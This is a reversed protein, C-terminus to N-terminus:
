PGPSADPRPGVERILGALQTATLKGAVDTGELLADALERKDKHLSLIQQEVTGEAILRYVTVPKTQGIRHARDSAQDEVAPNWWPDLHVVYDAATLTLGTGGAKLSILFVDGGDGEQFREVRKQRETVPVQGDLYSFMVKEADLAKKVMALHQTFQSFVLVKHGSERLQGILEVLRELKSTPGKWKPDILRPHCAALRLRTLAALVDFRKSESTVDGLEAIASLRVDDYLAREEDTLPVLLEIDTRPPLEKAVADKTRRLIFPRIITALHKTTEKSGRGFRSEFSEQSGLLLPMVGRFLSWLEGIHNEIPTGSLAVRFGAELQHAAKARQTNANKMAQAEDFVVTAFEADAFRSAERAFMTWSVVTVSGKPVQSLSRDTEDFLRVELRPAHRAAETKWTHLVSSPAVVLAPGEVSRATLLALTQLTKGLGMDDALVAGSCWQSLRSLWEFGEVQYPRLETKLATPVPFSQEKVDALREMLRRWETAAKFSKVQTELEAILPLAGITLQPAKGDSGMLALPALTDLLSQSLTAYDNDGLKVFRRRNRAAELLTALLVRRDDVEVSGEIGFWDKQRTVALSLADVTAEPSFRPQPAKWEVDIGSRQLAELTSLAADGPELHWTFEDNPETLGLSQAFLVAAHREAEFDRRTFTRKAGDFTAALSAGAGPTFLAGGSLPECRLSLALGRAGPAVRAVLTTSPPVETGKLSEPLELELRQELNPLSRALRAAVDKPMAGGWTALTTLLDLTDRSHEVFIIHSPFRHMSLVGTRTKFVFSPRELRFGGAQVSLDFGDSSEEIVVRAAVLLAPAPEDEGDWRLTAAAPLAKLADGFDAEDNQSSFRHRTSLLLEAMRREPGLPLGELHLEKLRQGQRSIGKKGTPHFRAEITRESVTFWISGERAITPAAPPRELVELLREWGPTLLDDLSETVEPNEPLGFALMELAAMQHSCLERGCSCTLSVADSWTRPDMRVNFRQGSGRPQIGIALGEKATVRSHPWHSALGLPFAHKQSLRAERALRRVADVRPFPVEGEVPDPLRRRDSAMEEFRTLRRALEPHSAALAERVTLRDASSSGDGLQGLTWQDFDPIGLAKIRAELRTRDPTAQVEGRRVPLQVVNNEQKEVWARFVRLASQYQSEPWHDSDDADGLFDLVSPAAAKAFDFLEDHTTPELNLEPLVERLPRRAWVTGRAREALEAFTLPAQQQRIANALAWRQILQFLEVESVGNLHSASSLFGRLSMSGARQMQRLLGPFAHQDDVEAVVRSLPVNDLRASSIIDRLLRIGTSNPTAV